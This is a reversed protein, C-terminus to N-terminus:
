KAFGASLIKKRGMRIGKFGLVQISAINNIPSFVFALWGEGLDILSITLLQSALQAFGQVPLALFWAFIAVILGVGAWVLRNRNRLRRTHLMVEATFKEPDLDQRAEEFLSQLYLTGYDTM